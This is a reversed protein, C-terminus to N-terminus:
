FWYPHSFSYDSFRGFWGRGNGNNIIFIIYDTVDSINKFIIYCRNMYILM